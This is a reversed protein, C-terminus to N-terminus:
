ESMARLISWWWKPPLVAVAYDLFGAPPRPPWSTTTVDSGLLKLHDLLNELRQRIQLPLVIHHVCDLGSRSLLRSRSFQTSYLAVFMDPFALSSLKTIHATWIMKIPVVMRSDVCLTYLPNWTYPSVKKLSRTPYGRTCPPHRRGLHAQRGLEYWAFLWCYQPGLPGVALM